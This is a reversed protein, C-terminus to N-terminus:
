AFLAQHIRELLNDLRFPKGVFQCKGLSQFHTEIDREGYGTMVLVPLAPQIERLRRVLEMGDMLPMQIDTIVLDYQGPRELFAEFALLGNAFGDVQYGARALGFALSRRIMEEDEALLIRASRSPPQLDM